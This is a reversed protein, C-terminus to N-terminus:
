HSGGRELGVAAIASSEGAPTQLIGRTRRSSRVALRELPWYDLLLLVFPLTIVMPKAMLGLAFMAFVLLYRRWDPKRAYWVYAGIALLFFLTSLVSKREAVWAVSEVNLPHFAFLAAVLLSPGTRKTMWALLLFLLAANLAHLLVNGLHHGLPNLAFLRYDLAHSLWTLPHWNAAYTSAFAWKVTTWDLKRIHPNGTVYEHDDWVSSGIEWCLFTSHSPQPPWCCHWCPM